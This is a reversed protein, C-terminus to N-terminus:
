LNFNLFFFFFFNETKPLGCFLESVGFYIMRTKITCNLIILGWVFFAVKARKFKKRHVASEPRRRKKKFFRKRCRRKFVVCVLLHRDFMTTLQARAMMAENHTSCEESATGYQLRIQRLNKAQEKEEKQEEIKTSSLSPLIKSGWM